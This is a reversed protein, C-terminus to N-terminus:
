LHFNDQLLLANICYIVVDFLMVLSGGIPLEVIGVKDEYLIKKSIISSNIIIITTFRAVNSIFSM